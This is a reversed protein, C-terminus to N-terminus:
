TTRFFVSQWHNEPFSPHPPPRTGPAGPHPAPRHRRPSLHVVVPGPWRMTPPCQGWPAIPKEVPGPSCLPAPASSTPYDRTINSFAGLRSLALPKAAGWVAGRTARARSKGEIVYRSIIRHGARTSTVEGDCADRRGPCIPLSFGSGAAASQSSAFSGNIV